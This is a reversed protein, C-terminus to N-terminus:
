SGTTKKIHKKNKKKQIPNPRYALVKDVIKDLKPPVKKM